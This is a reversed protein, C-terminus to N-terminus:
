RVFDSKDIWPSVPTWWTWQRTAANANVDRVQGAKEAATMADQLSQAGPAGMPPGILASAETEWMVM